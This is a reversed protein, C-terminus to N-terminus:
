SFRVDASNNNAFSIFKQKFNSNEHRTANSFTAYFNCLTFHILLEVINNCDSVINYWNGYATSVNLIQLKLLIAQHQSVLYSYNGEDCASISDDCLFSIKMNQCLLSVSKKGRVWNDTQIDSLLIVCDLKMSFLTLRSHSGLRMVLLVLTESISVKIFRSIVRCCCLFKEM